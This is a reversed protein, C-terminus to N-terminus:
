DKEDSCLDGYYVTIAKMKGNLASQEIECSNGGGALQALQEVDANKPLFYAINRSIKSATEFIKFGDM